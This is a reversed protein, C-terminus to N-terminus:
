RPHESQRVECSRKGTSVTIETWVSGPCQLFCVEIVADLCRCVYKQSERRTPAMPRSWTPEVHNYLFWRLWEHRARIVCTSGTLHENEFLNKCEIDNIPDYAQESSALVRTVLLMGSPHKSGRVPIVMFQTSVSFAGLAQSHQQSQARPERTQAPNASSSAL